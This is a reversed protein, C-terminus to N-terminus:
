SEAAVKLAKQDQSRKSGVMHATREVRECCFGRRWDVGAFDCLAFLTGSVREVSVTSFPSISFAGLRDLIQLKAQWWPVLNISFATRVLSAFTAVHKANWLIQM